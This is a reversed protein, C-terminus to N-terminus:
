LQMNIDLHHLCVLPWQGRGAVMEISLLGMHVRYPSIILTFPPSFLTMIQSLYISPSFNCLFNSVPWQTAGFDLAIVSPMVSLGM